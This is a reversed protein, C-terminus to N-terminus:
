NVDLFKKIILAPIIVTSTRSLRAINIGIFVGDIDFVPGGCSSPQVSADQVFVAHFGDRRISKGGVFNEAPHNGVKQPPYKLVVLRTIKQGARTIAVTATDGAQYKGFAKVFDLEDAVPLGDVSEVIDEITFGSIEAASGPQIFTFVLKDRKFGTSAGIYGHSTKPPLNIQMTSLVGRLAISDPRPSRLQRGLHQFATNGTDDSGFKIGQNVMVSSGILVLDNARDRKLVIGKVINGNELAIMPTEGVMSSKSVIFSKAVANNAHSIDLSLVAGLIYRRTGNILSSIRVCSQKLKKDSRVQLDLQYELPIKRIASFLSDSGLVDTDAPLLTFNGGSKLASYYKRYTDIPVEYNVNEAVEIGSHIGIVRGLLDFLPGGSDGPEMVCTSQLFGYKNQLISIHGFRVSPKRQELTEPYAISICPAGATLSSVWGMEAFPWSGEDVIKLMAADPLMFAPPISIRGQGKAVCEQGDPFMVRYSKGPTVVHAASLIDGNKSVVVGSFQAGQRTHSIADIEWMLVSAKYGKAVAGSVYGSLENAISGKPQTYAASVALSQVAAILLVQCKNM